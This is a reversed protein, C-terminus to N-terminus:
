LKKCIGKEKFYESVIVKTLEPDNLLYDCDKFGHRIAYKLWDISKEIQNKRAYICALNYAAQKFGPKLKLIKQYYFIATDDQKRTYLVALRYLTRISDPQLSLGLLYTEVAQQRYGCVEYLRALQYQLATKNNTNFKLKMLAMDLNSQALEYSPYLQLAKSFHKVAAKTRGKQELAHGLNNHARPNDPSKQVCDLAFTVANKWVVNRRVVGISFILVVIVTLILPAKSKWFRTQMIFLSMLICFGVAPMYLRQEAIPRGSVDLIMFIHLYPFIFIFVWACGFWFLGTPGCYKKGWFIFACLLICPILIQREFFSGPLKFLRDANLNVPIVLISLYQWLSKLGALVTTINESRTLNDYFALKFGPYFGLMVPFATLLVVAKKHGGLFIIDALLLVPLVMATEKSLLGCGFCCLSGALCIATSYNRPCAVARRFFLFSALSFFLCLLESRNKIWIVAETNVPHCAFLLAAILALPLRGPILQLVLWYLLVVNFLHVMLNFFHYGAPNKGWLAYDVAFSLSRMPRYIRAKIVNQHKWYDLTFIIGIKNLDHIHQDAIIFAEDDWIFSNRLTGAYILITVLSLLLISFINNKLHRTM